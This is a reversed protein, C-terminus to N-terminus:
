DGGGGGGERGRLLLGIVTKILEWSRHTRQLIPIQMCLSHYLTSLNCTGGDLMWWWPVRTIGSLHQYNTSSSSSYDEM